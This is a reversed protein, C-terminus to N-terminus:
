LQRGRRELRGVEAERDVQGGRQPEGVGPRQDHGRRLGPDPDGLGLQRLGLDEPDGREVDAEVVEAVVAAARVEVLADHGRGARVEEVATGAQQPIRGVVSAM